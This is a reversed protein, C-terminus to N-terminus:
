QNFGCGIRILYNEKQYYKQCLKNEAEMESLLNQYANIKPDSPTDTDKLPAVVTAGKLYSSLTQADHTLTEEDEGSLRHALDLPIGHATAVRNKM